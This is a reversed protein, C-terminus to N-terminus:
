RRITSIVQVQLSGGPAVTANAPSTISFARIQPIGPIGYKQFYGNGGSLGIDLGDNGAGIAPSTSQLSYDNTYSYAGTAANVFVPDTNPLNNSLVNGSGTPFATSTGGYSINNEFLAGSISGNPVSGYFINNFLTLNRNGTGNQGFVNGSYLFLNNLFYINSM